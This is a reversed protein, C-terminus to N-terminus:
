QALSITVKQVQFVKPILLPTNDIYNTYDRNKGYGYISRKAVLADGLMSGTAQQTFLRWLFMPGLAALAVRRWSWIRRVWQRKYFPFRKFSSSWSPAEQQQSQKRQEQKRALYAARSEGMLSPVNAVFLGTWLLLDGFWNPHQSWSWLGVNCFKASSSSSSSSSSSAANTLKFIWKQLDAVTEIIWGVVFLGMGTQFVQWNGADSSSLGLSYPLGCVVGWLASFAWFGACYSPNAMIADLRADGGQEIVRLFLYTALKTSWAVVALSTYYLRQPNHRRQAAQFTGRQAPHDSMFEERRLVNNLERTAQRYAPLAALAFAGSGLLDVHYHKNWSAGRFLLSILFGVLNTGLIISNYRYCPSYDFVVDRTWVVGYSSSSTKRKSPPVFGATTTTPTSRSSSSVEMPATPVVITPTTPPPLTTTTTTPDAAAAVPPRKKKSPPPLRRPTFSSSSSSATTPPPLEIVDGNFGGPVQKLKMFGM